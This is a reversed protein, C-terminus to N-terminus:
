FFGRPTRFFAGAPGIERWLANAKGTVVEHESLVASVRAPEFTDTDIRLLEAVLNKTLTCSGIYASAAFVWALLGGYSEAVMNQTTM